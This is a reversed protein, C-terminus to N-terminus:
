DEPGEFSTVCPNLGMERWLEATTKPPCLCSLGLTGIIEGTGFLCNLSELPKSPETCGTCLKYPLTGSEACANAGSHGGEGGSVGAEALLKERDVDSSFGSGIGGGGRIGSRLGFRM